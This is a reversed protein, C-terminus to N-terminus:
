EDYRDVKENYMEEKQESKYKNHFHDLSCFTCIVSSCKYCEFLIAKAIDCVSCNEM